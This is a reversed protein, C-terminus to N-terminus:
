YLDRLVVGLRANARDLAAVVALMQEDSRTESGRMWAVKEVEITATSLEEVLHRLEDDLVRERLMSLRRRAQFDRDSMGEPLQTRQGTRRLQMTDFHQIEGAARVLDAM